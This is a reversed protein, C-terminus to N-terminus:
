AVDDEITSFKQDVWSDLWKRSITKGKGGISKVPWNERKAIVYIQALSVNIMQAAEAM